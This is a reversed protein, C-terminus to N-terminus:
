APNMDIIVNEMLASGDSGDLRAEEIVGTWTESTGLSSLNKRTIRIWRGRITDGDQSWSSKGNVPLVSGVTMVQTPKVYVNKVGCAGGVDVKQAKDVIQISKLVCLATYTDTDWTASGGPVHATGIEISFTGNAITLGGALVVEAM